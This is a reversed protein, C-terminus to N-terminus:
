NPNTTCNIPNTTKLNSYLITYMMGAALDFQMQRPPPAEKSPPYVRYSQAGTVLSLNPHKATFHTLTKYFPDRQYNMLNFGSGEDLFGEPTLLFDTTETLQPGSIEQAMRLLQPNTLRYKEDYPDLNPQLVVVEVEESSDVHSQYLVLSIAIPIGIWLLNPLYGRIAAKLNREKLYFHFWKLAILNLLLVWLTGGFTGTYEYWQIWLISESFVNGLNLWPWSFDWNLHFKEFSMWFSILFLHSTVRPLRTLVWRYLTFIIAYFSSNCILAFAAGFLTSNYIWWTTIINWIFFGIYSYLFVTMGKRKISSANIKDVLYLMPVLGFFSLFALGYTPWALALSCGSIFSLALYKKM